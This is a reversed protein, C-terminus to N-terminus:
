CRRWPESYDEALTGHRSTTCHRSRLLSRWVESRSILSSPIPSLQRVTIRQDNSTSESKQDAESGVVSQLKWSTSSLAREFRQLDNTGNDKDIGQLPLEIRRQRSDLVNLKTERDALSETKDTATEPPVQYSTVASNDVFDQNNEHTGRSENLSLGTEALPTENTEHGDAFDNTIGDAQHPDPIVPLTSIEEHMIEEGVFESKGRIAFKDAEETTSCLLAQTDVTWGNIPSEDVMHADIGHNLVRLQPDNNRPDCVEATRAEPSTVVAGLHKEATEHSAEQFTNVVRSITAHPDDNLKTTDDNSELSSILTEASATAVTASETHDARPTNPEPGSTTKDIDATVGRYGSESNGAGDIADNRAEESYRDSDFDQFKRVCGDTPLSDSTEQAKAKVSGLDIADAVEEGSSVAGQDTSGEVSDTHVDVAQNPVQLMTESATHDIDASGRKGLSAKQYDVDSVTKEKVEEKDVLATDDNHAEPPTRGSSGSGDRQLVSSEVVGDLLIPEVSSEHPLPSKVDTVAQKKEDDVLYAEHNTNASGVDAPRLTVMAVIANSETNQDVSPGEDHMKQWLSSVTNKKLCCIQNRSELGRTTPIKTKNDPPSPDYEMANHFKEESAEKVEGTTFTSSHDKVKVAKAEAAVSIENEQITNDVQTPGNEHDSSLVSSQERGIRPDHSSDNSQRDQSESESAADQEKESSGQPLGIRVSRRRTAVAKKEGRRGKGPNKDDWSSFSLSSGASQADDNNDSQSDEIESVKLRRSLASQSRRTFNRSAKEESSDSQFKRGGSSRLKEVKARAEKQAEIEEQTVYADNSHRGTKRPKLTKFTEDPEKRKRRLVIDFVTLDADEDSEAKSRNRISGRRRPKVM